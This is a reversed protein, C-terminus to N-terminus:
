IQKTNIYIYIYIFIYIYIYILLVGEWTKKGDAICPKGDGAAVTTTTALLQCFEDM